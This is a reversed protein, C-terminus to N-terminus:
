NSIGKLFIWCNRTIITNLFNTFKYSAIACSLRICFFKQKKLTANSLSNHPKYFWFISPNLFDANCEQFNSCTLSCHVIRLANKHSLPVHFHRLLLARTNTDSVRTLRRTHVGRTDITRDQAAEKHWHRCSLPRSQYVNSNRGNRIGKNQENKWSTAFQRM